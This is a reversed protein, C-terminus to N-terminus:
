IIKAHIRRETVYIRLHAMRAEISPAFAELTLIAPNDASPIPITTWGPFFGGSAALIIINDRELASGNGPNEEFRVIQIFKRQGGRLDFNARFIVPLNTPNDGTKPMPTAAVLRINCDYIDNLSNNLVAVYITRRFIGTENIHETREYKGDNGFEIQLPSGTLPSAAVIATECIAAIKKPPQWRKGVQYAALIIAASLLAPIVYSSVSAIVNAEKIDFTVELYQVLWSYLFHDLLWYIAGSLAVWLISFAKPPM